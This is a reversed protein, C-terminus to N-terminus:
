SRMRVYSGASGSIPTGEEHNEERSLLSNKLDRLSNMLIEKQKPSCESVKGAMSKQAKKKVQAYFRKGSPTLTLQVQRRDVVQRVRKVLGRRVLGDVMRSIGPLSTGIWEALEGIGSDRKKQLRALVRFQTISLHGSVAARMEQRLLQMVPPVIEYLREACAESLNLNTDSMFQVGASGTFKLM